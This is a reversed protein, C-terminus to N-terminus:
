LLEDKTRLIQVTMGGNNICVIYEGRGWAMVMSAGMIDVLEHGM